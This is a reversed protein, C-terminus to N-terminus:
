CRATPRLSGGASKGLRGTFVFGVRGTPLRRADSKAGM